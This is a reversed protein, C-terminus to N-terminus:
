FYIKYEYNIGPLTLFLKPGSEIFISGFCRSPPLLLSDDGGRHELVLQGATHHIHQSPLLLPDDGGRHGLLLQGATHHIHQPPLLLPDDGGRHGRGPHLVGGGGGEGGIPCLYCKAVHRLELRKLILKLFVRLM